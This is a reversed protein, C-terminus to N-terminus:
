NDRMVDLLLFMELNKWSLDVQLLVKCCSHLEFSFWRSQVEVSRQLTPGSPRQIRWIHLAGRQLHSFVSVFGNKPRDCLDIVFLDCSPLVVQIKRIVVVHASTNNIHKDCLCTRRQLLFSLLETDQGFYGKVKKVITELSSFHFFANTKSWSWSLNTCILCKFATIGTHTYTHTHTKCASHSRRGEPLPQTSPTSLWSNTETNFVKIKNCYIENNSHFPGFRDARGGFVFMKTGIITASHFDRWRAPPGKLVFSVCM